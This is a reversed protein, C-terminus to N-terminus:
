LFLGRTFFTTQLELFFSFIFLAFLFTKERYPLCTGELTVFIDICIMCQSSVKKQSVIIKKFWVIRDSTVVLDRHRVCSHETSFTSIPCAYHTMVDGFDSQFFFMECHGRTAQARLTHVKWHCQFCRSDSLAWWTVHDASAFANDAGDNYGLDTADCGLPRNSASICVGAALGYNLGFRDGNYDHTDLRTWVRGGRRYALATQWQWVAPATTRDSSSESEEFKGVERHVEQM